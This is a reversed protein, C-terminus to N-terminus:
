YEKLVMDARLIRILSSSSTNDNISLSIFRLISLNKSKPLPQDIIRRHLIEICTSTGM